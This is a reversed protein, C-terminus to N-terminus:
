QVKRVEIEKLWRIHRPGTRTDNTNLMMFNGERSALLKGDREYVIIINDAAASNFLEHWTWMAQFGDSARAIILTKNFDRREDFVISAKELVEKLRAGTCAKITEKVEGSHSLIKVDRMTVPKYAKLDQVTLTLPTKVKGTVSISTTVYKALSDTQAHLLEYSNCYVVCSCSFILVARFLRHRFFFSSINM